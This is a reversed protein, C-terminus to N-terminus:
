NWFILKTLVGALAVWISWLVKGTSRRFSTNRNVRATVGTDPDFLKSKIFRVDDKIDALKEDLELNTIRRGM